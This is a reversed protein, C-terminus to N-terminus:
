YLNLLNGSKVRKKFLKLNKINQKLEKQLTLNKLYRDVDKTSTKLKTGSAGYKTELLKDENKLIEISLQHMQIKQIKRRLKPIKTNIYFNKIESEEKIKLFEDVCDQLGHFLMDHVTISFTARHKLCGYYRGSNSEAELWQVELNYDSYHRYKSRIVSLLKNKIRESMVELPDIGDNLCPDLDNFTIYGSLREQLTPSKLLSSLSPYDGYVLYDNDFYMESRRLVLDVKSSSIEGSFFPIKITDPHPNYCCTTIAPIANCSVM